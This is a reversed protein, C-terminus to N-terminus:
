TPHFEEVKRTSGKADISVTIAISLHGTQIAGPGEVRSRNHPATVRVREPARDVNSVNKRM